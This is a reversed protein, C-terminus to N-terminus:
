RRRARGGAPRQPRRPRPRAQRRRGRDRGLPAPASRATPRRSRRASVLVGVRQRVLRVGEGDPRAGDDAQQRLHVVRPVEPHGVLRTPRRHLPPHRRARRRCRGRVSRQGRRRERRPRAHRRPRHDLRDPGARPDVHRRGEGAPAPARPRDGERRRDVDARPQDRGRARPAPGQAARGAAGPGAHVRPDHDHLRERHRRPRRAGEGHAGRLEDHVVRELRHPPQRPRVRRRERRARRHHGSRHGAGLHRGEERRRRPAEARGRPRHLLRDVRARRRRRARGLAPEGSRARVAVQAGRRGRPHRGRRARGRRPLARADLRVQAPAGDDRRRRPRQVGRDRRGRRARAAGPLLQARHARLRQDRGTGGHGGGSESASGSALRVLCAM